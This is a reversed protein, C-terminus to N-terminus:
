GFLLELNMKVLKTQMMMAMMLIGQLVQRTNLLNLILLFLIAQNIETIIGCVTQQKETIKVTNVARCDMNEKELHESFVTKGFFNLQFIIKRTNDPFIKKKKGLFIM